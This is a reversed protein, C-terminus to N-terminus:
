RDNLYVLGKKPSRTKAEVRERDMESRYWVMELQPLSTNTLHYAILMSVILACQPNHIIPLPSPSSEPRQAHVSSEDDILTGNLPNLSALPSRAERRVM